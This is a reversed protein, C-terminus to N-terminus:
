QRGPERRRGRDRRPGHGRDHPGHGRSRGATATKTRRATRSDTAMPIRTSPISSTPKRFNTGAPQLGHCLDEGDPKIKGLEVGDSLGDQDTDCDNPLTGRAVIEEGDTVGDGDTDIDVDPNNPDSVGPVTVAGVPMMQVAFSPAARLGAPCRCHGFDRVAM